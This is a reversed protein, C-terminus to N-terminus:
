GAHAGVGAELGAMREEVLGLVLACAADLESMTLAVCTCRAVLTGLATTGSGGHPLLNVANLALYLFADTDSLPTLATAGGPRLPAGGRHWARM